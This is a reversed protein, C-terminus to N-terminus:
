RGTSRLRIGATEQDRVLHVTEAEQLAGPVQDLGTTHSDDAGTAALDKRASPSESAAHFQPAAILTLLAAGFRLQDGHKLEAHQIAVGNVITGNNSCLDHLQWKGERYILLCHRRSVQLDRVQIDCDAARGVVLREAANLV